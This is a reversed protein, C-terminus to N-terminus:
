TRDAHGYIPEATDSQVEIKKVCVIRGAGGARWWRCFWKNVKKRRGGINAVM